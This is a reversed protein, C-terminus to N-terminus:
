GMLGRRQRARRRFMTKGKQSGSGQGGGFWLMEYASCFRPVRSTSTSPCVWHPATLAATASNTSRAFARCASTRSVQNQKDLSSPLGVIMRLLSSGETARRLIAAM